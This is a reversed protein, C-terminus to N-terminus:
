IKDIWNVVVLLMMILVLLSHSFVVMASYIRSTSQGNQKNDTINERNHVMDHAHLGQKKQTSGLLIMSRDFEPAMPVRFGDLSTINAGANKRPWWPLLVRSTRLPHGSSGRNLWPSHLFYCQSLVDWSVKITGSGVGTGCCWGGLVPWCHYLQTSNKFAPM